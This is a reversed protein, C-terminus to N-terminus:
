ITDTLSSKSKRLLAVRKSHGKKNKATTTYADPKLGAKKKKLYCEV